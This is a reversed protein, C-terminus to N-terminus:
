FKSRKAKSRVGVASLDIPKFGLKFAPSTPKLTFDYREPAVFQPDAILSRVDHGRQRWPELTAEKFKLSAPAAGPRADFYLNADMVFRDNKWNSGLLSGSDFYVLNNTFFFSLHPEERTRMLQSEKGFAFVNNRVINERGYHQHFGASKTRYVINSELVIGTSGEDTYLGWGGYTFSVVDHILNNRIVTGQQIGLTYVGGMDSLMNQGLDHLHNFEIVNERCPSERYGWTWGVSVASYYLHHIHNHAVRNRGSQIIFVGVAPSYIVGCHHIHNDTIVQSHTGDFPATRVVTEGVRVGGAGLDFMENGIIKNRQCGRAFDVAYGALQSFTCDEIVCDVVGESYLDGPVAVAAQSDRYGEPGMSWDTFRFALGRLVVHQVPKPIALDGQLRLLEPLHPAIVDAQTMEEGPLPWYTVVGTQRDLYWEGPADLADPTNEIFYRAEKERTHSPASGSLTVLNSVENVARIHQRLDTWKEFAVVEVHGDAVWEQRLDGPKFKFQVPKDQLRAGDMRFFQGENPTRARVARRSNVFLSRFNWRGDRVAPVTAQWLDRGAGAKKWGTIRRGGSLVPKEEPYAAITLPAQASAGSDEPTLAVPDPLEYVGGRLLITVGDRAQAALKAQRAAKLAAPLTALPGDQGNAAPQALRGSWQDNGNTAVYIVPLGASQGDIALTGSLAVVTFPLRWNPKFAALLNFRM